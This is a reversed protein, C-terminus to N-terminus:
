HVSVPAFDNQRALTFALDRSGTLAIREGDPSCLAYVVEAGMTQERIEEPLDRTNVRRVYVQREGTMKSFDYRTKM